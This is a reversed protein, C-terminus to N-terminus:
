GVDGISQVDIQAPSVTGVNNNRMSNIWASNRLRMPAQDMADYTKAQSIAELARKELEQVKSSSQTLRECSTFALMIAVVRCFTEPWLGVYDDAAMDKSIFRMYIPTVNTHILNAEDKYNVQNTFLSTTSIQVTRLWYTPKTFAYNYGPISIGLTLAGSRTASDIAQVTFTNVSPVSALIYFGTAAGGSGITLYVRSGAALGHASKTVTITTTSQSYTGTAGENGNATLQQTRTAFNWLGLTFCHEVVRSWVEDLEYRAEVDDTITALRLDGLHRLAANYIQLKTAM